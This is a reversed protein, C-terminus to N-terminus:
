FSGGPNGEMVRPHSMATLEVTFTEVEEFINNDLVSINVCQTDNANSGAPFELPFSSIPTYDDDAMASVIIIPVFHLWFLHQHGM